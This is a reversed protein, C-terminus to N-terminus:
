TQSFKSIRPKIIIGRKKEKRAFSPNQSGHKKFNFKQAEVESKSGAVKFKGFTKFNRFQRFEKVKLNQFEFECTQIQFKWSEM